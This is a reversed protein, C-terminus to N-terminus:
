PKIYVFGESQRKVIEVVGSPVVEVLPIIREKELGLSKLANNCAVFKVGKKHLTIMLNKNAYLEQNLDYYQVAEGNAVVEIHLADHEMGALLNSVNALLIKWKNLEDIHFLVKYESM